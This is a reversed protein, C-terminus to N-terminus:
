KLKLQFLNKLIKSTRFCFDNTKYINTNKLMNPFSVKGDPSVLLNSAPMLPTWRLCEPEIPIQISSKKRKLHADVMNWDICITLKECIEVVM